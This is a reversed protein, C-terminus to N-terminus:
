AVMARRNSVSVPRAMLRWVTWRISACHRIVRFFLGHDGRLTEAGIHHGPALREQGLYRRDWRLPEHEDVLRADLDPRARRVSERGSALPADLHSREPDALADVQKSPHGRRTPAHTRVLARDLCRREFREHRLAQHRAQLCPVYHHGPRVAPRSLARIWLGAATARTADTPARTSACGGYLGSRLAM